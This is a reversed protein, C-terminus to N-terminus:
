RSFRAYMPEISMVKHSGHADKITAGHPPMGPVDHDGKPQGFNHYGISYIFIM